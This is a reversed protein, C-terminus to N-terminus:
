ARLNDRMTASPDLFARASLVRWVVFLVGAMDVAAGVAWMLIGGLAQDEAATLGFATATAAYSAYLPEPQSSLLLGLAASQLAGLLLYAIRAGPHPAPAVRPAAGLAPWWFLAATGFFLVHELDHLLDMRLTAEYAPPLHWLWLVVVYAPWAVAM